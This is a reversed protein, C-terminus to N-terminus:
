SWGRSLGISIEFPGFTSDLISVATPIQVFHISVSSNHSYFVTPPTINMIQDDSTLDRTARGSIINGLEGICSAQLEEQEVSGIDSLMKQTIHAALENSMAYVVQGNLGGELAFGISICCPYSPKTSSKLSSSREVLSIDLESQLIMKASSSFAKMYKVRQDNVMITKGLLKENM